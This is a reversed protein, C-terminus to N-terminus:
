VLHSDLHRKKSQIMMTTPECQTTHSQSVSNYDIQQQQQQQELTSTQTNINIRRNRTDSHRRAFSRTLLHATCTNSDIYEVLPSAFVVYRGRSLAYWCDMSTKERDIRTHTTIATLQHSHLFTYTYSSM